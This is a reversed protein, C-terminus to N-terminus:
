GLHLRTFLGIPLNVDGGIPPAGERKSGQPAKRHMRLQSPRRSRSFLFYTTEKDKTPAPSLEDKVKSYRDVPPLSWSSLRPGM